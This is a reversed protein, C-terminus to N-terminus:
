WNNDNMHENVPGQHHAVSMAQAIGAVEDMRSWLMELIKGEVQGAGEVFNLTFKPFCEWIHAALHWKGVAGM